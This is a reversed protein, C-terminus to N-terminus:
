IWIMVGLAQLIFPVSLCRNEFGPLCTMTTDIVRAHAQSRMTLGLDKRTREQQMAALLRKGEESPPESSLVSRFLARQPTLRSHSFLMWERQLAEEERDGRRTARRVAWVTAEADVAPWIPADQFVHGSPKLAFRQAVDELMQDGESLMTVLVFLEGGPRLIAWPATRSRYAEVGAKTRALYTKAKLKEIAAAPMPERLKSIAVSEYPHLGLEPTDSGPLRRVEQRRVGMLSWVVTEGQLDALLPATEGAHFSAIFMARVSDVFPPPKRADPRLAPVKFPVLTAAISECDTPVIALAARVEAPLEQAGLAAHWLVLCGAALARRTM